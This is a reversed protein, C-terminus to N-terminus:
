AVGPRASAGTLSVFVERPPHHGLRQPVVCPAQRGHRRSGGNPPVTVREGVVDHGAISDGLLRALANMAVRAAQPQPVHQVRRQVLAGNHHKEQMHARPPQAKDNM